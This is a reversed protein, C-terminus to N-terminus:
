AVQDLDTTSPNSLLSFVHGKPSTFVREVIQGNNIIVKTNISGFPLPNVSRNKLIDELEPYHDSPKLVDKLDPHLALLSDDFAKFNKKFGM